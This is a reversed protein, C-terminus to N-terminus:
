IQWIQMSINMLYNNTRCYEIVLFAHHDIVIPCEKAAFSEILANLSAILTKIKAIRAITLKSQLDKNIKFEEYQGDRKLIKCM